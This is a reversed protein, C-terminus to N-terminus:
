KVKKLAIRAFSGLRFKQLFDRFSNRLENDDRDSLIYKVFEQGPSSSISSSVNDLDLLSPTSFEIIEFGDIGQILKIMGEYSFLNMKEPPNFINSHEGLIKAEFGSSLLCTIFCLGGIKLSEYIDDLLKFPNISRELAEFLFSVEFYEKELKDITNLKSSKLTDAKIPFYPEYFYYESNNIINSSLYYLWHVAHSEFINYKQDKNKLHQMIIEKIWNLQPDIIEKTRMEQTKKLIENLWFSRSESDHYYRKIVDEDPRPSLFIGDLEKCYVYDMGYKKFKLDYSKLESFPLFNKHAMKNLDEEVRKWYEAILEPPQIEKKKLNGRYIVREM